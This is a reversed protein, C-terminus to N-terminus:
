SADIRTGGGRRWTRCHWSDLKILLCPLSLVRYLLFPETTSETGAGVAHTAGNQQRHRFGGLQGETVWFQSDLHFLFAKAVAAELKRM